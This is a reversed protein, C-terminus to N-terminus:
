GNRPFPNRAQSATPIPVFSLTVSDARRAQAQNFSCGVWRCAHTCFRGRHLHAQTIVVTDGWFLEWGISVLSKELVISGAKGHGCSLM